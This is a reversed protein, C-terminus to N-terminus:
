PPPVKEQKKLTQRIEEIALYTIILVAITLYQIVESMEVAKSPNTILYFLCIALNPLAMAALTCKALDSIEIYQNHWLRFGIPLIFFIVALIVSINVSSYQM